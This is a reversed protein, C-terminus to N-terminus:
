PNELDFADTLWEGLTENEELYRERCVSVASKLSLPITNNRIWRNRNNKVNLLNCELYQSLVIDYLLQKVTDNDPYHSVLSDIYYANHAMMNSKYNKIDSRMIDGDCREAVFAEAYEMNLICLMLGDRDCEQTILHYHEDFPAFFEPIEDRIETIRSPTDVHSAVYMGDSYIGSLVPHTKLSRGYTRHLEPIISLLIDGPPLEDTDDYTRNTMKQHLDIAQELLTPPMTSM